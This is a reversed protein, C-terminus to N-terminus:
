EWTAWAIQLRHRALSLGTAVALLTVGLVTLALSPPLGFSPLFLARLGGVIVLGAGSLVLSRLRAAIGLVLLLLSEGALLLTPLLDQQNFSLWLMPLLLLAAGLMAALQGSAHHRPLAEDRMLFPSLVILYSAPALTLLELRAQGFAVLEWSVVLSLLLGAGYTSYRRITTNSQLRGDWFLLLALVFLSVAGVHGLLGSGALLGGHLAITLVVLAQGGLGFARHLLAPSLWRAPSPLVRWAFRTVYLVICLLSYALMASAFDLPLLSIAWAALGAPVFLAEPVREYCLVGFALLAFLFLAAPVAGYFPAQIGSLNGYVGTLVASALATAYMALAGQKRRLGASLFPLSVRNLGGIAMGIGTCVLAVIPPWYLNGALYAADFVSWTAFVPTLWLALPLDEVIGIIYALAAFALLVWGAALWHAQTYGTYGAMIGGLLAVSYLPLAWSRGAVHSVGVALLAAVPTVVVLVWFPNNPLVLAAVAFGIVAILWLRARAFAASAYWALSLAVLELAVPVHWGTWNQLMSTALPMDHIAVLMGCILAYCLLPWEWAVRRAQESRESIVRRIVTAALPLLLGLSLTGAIHEFFLIPLAVLAFLLPLVLWRQRRQYVIYIYSISAFLFLLFLTIDMTQGLSLVLTFLADALAVLDLPNYWTAGARQRTVISAGALLLALGLFSWMPSLDLLLAVLGVAVNLLYGALLLLWPWNNPTTKARSHAQFRRITVDLVLAMGLTVAVLEAVAEWSAVFLSPPYIFTPLMARSSLQNLLLPAGVLPVAAVLCLAITDLHLALRDFPRLFSAAVRTLGHYLFATLTLALAYGTTQFAFAYCFCLVCALFLFALVIVERSRRVLRLYLSTWGLSLLSMVLLSIRADAGPSGQITIVFLVAVVIGAASAGAFVFMLLRVPERLVAFPGIFYRRPSAVSLLMPFALLMLTEPWWWYSLGLANSLALDAVALAVIGLYAFPKFRQFIALLLYVVAAYTTAITILTPVTLQILNGEHLRYASFGVLPVLLAFIITYIIAVVRFTRFRYTGLGVAGFLAHIAFVVIFSLLLNTTTIIFSLAGILVLFAGLSAVINITQDALLSKFSFMPRAAQPTTVREVPTAVQLSPPSAGSSEPNRAAQPGFTLPVPLPQQRRLWELRAVYRSILENVTLKGGGFAACRRLDRLSTELFLSEKAPDVPYHCKPCDEEFQSLVPHGCCYCRDPSAQKM